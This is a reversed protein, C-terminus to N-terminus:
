RPRKWVFVVAVVALAAIVVVSGMASGFEPIEFTFQVDIQSFTTDQDCVGTETAQGGFTAIVTIDDNDNWESESFEVQYFGDSGTVCHLTTSTQVITVAVDAGEVLTGTSDTIYGVVTYNGIGSVAPRSASDFTMGVMTLLVLELALITLLRKNRKDSVRM